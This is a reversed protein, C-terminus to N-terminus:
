HGAMQEVPEAAGVQRPRGSRITRAPKIRPGAAASGGSALRRAPTAGVVSDSPVDRTVACAPNVTVRSGIRSPGPVVANVGMRVHDGMQVWNASKQGDRVGICNGGTLTCNEGIAVYPSIAVGLSPHLILLGPGIDAAYHIECPRFWPRLAFFVPSMAARLLRWSDGLALFCFRDLRYLAVAHFCESFARGIFSGRLRAADASLYRLQGLASKM